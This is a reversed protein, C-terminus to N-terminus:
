TGRVCMCAVAGCTSLHTCANCVPPRGGTSAPREAHSALGTKNKAFCAHVCMGRLKASGLGAGPARRALLLLCSALLLLLLATAGVFGQHWSARAARTAAQSPPAALPRPPGGLPNRPPGLGMGGGWQVPPFDVERHTRTCATPPLPLTRAHTGAVLTCTRKAVAGQRPTGAGAHIIYISRRGSM